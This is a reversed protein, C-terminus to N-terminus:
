SRGSVGAYRAMFEAAQRNGSTSTGTKDLLLTDVDGAAEM